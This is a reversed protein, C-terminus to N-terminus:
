TGLTSSLNNKNSMNNMTWNHMINEFVDYDQSYKLLFLLRPM